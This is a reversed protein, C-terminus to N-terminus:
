AAAVASDAPAPPAPRQDGALVQEHTAHEEGFRVLRASNFVVVISSVTHLVAAMVPTVIGFAGLTVITVVFAVGFVLNQFIVKRTERSLRILFPLRLLDNNLLAISASNIAVDSGAAGMAIGLDGAALAPADNVGDGVVTVRHGERRLQEVLELKEHPLCEAKFESCGMERAVKRAVAQRDGTLMALRRIGCALLQQVAERAAPRTRDEVAVYGLCKGGRAVFLLGAGEVKAASASAATVDVGRQRLFTDRGVMVVDGNVQAVVGQGPVEEFKSPRVLEVNAERALQVLARAAPHNSLQEASGASELLLAPDVQDMPTLRTVHLEGTTLTGTKDLVVATMRGASELHAVNKILIGLRAACSLGAVVATPTAMILACPCSAVLMSIAKQLGDGSARNFYLVLGALMLVVPTYWVAYRDILRMIPIRTREAQLILSQVRGLTTDAGVKTVEVDLAGTLNSTGSFVQDGPRKDIPLSEGTINAQNVISEGQAVVGDVPINDGPRVRVHQGVRLDRVDVDVEGSDTILRAKTPTLRILSEIAARAGIATRTEVLESLLLFFGIVGAARYDGMAFAALIALAVLEDMHMHGSFLTRLAHWIIRAGLLGAGVAAVLDMQFQYQYVRVKRLVGDVLQDELTWPSYWQIYYSTLVLLGGMLTLIVGASARSAASAAGHDHHHHHAHGHGDHDHFAEVDQLGIVRHAM